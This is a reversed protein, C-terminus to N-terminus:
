VYDGILGGILQSQGEVRQGLRVRVILAHAERRVKCPPEDFLVLAHLDRDGCTQM